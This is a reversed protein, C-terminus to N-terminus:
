EEIIERMLHKTEPLPAIGFEKKLVAECKRYTKIAM